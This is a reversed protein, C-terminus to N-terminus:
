SYFPSSCRLSWLRTFMEQFPILLLWGTVLLRRLLEVLEWYFFKDRFGSTLFHAAKGSTSRPVGARLDKRNFFLIFFFLVLMGVPWLLLMAVAVVMSVNHTHSSCVVTPDKLLFSVVEGGPAVEYQECVWTSFIARSVSPLCIFVILLSLCVAAVQKRASTSPNSKAATSSRSGRDNSMIPVVSNRIQNVRCLKCEMAWVVFLVCAAVTLPSLSTILLLTNEWGNICGAPYALDTWDFTLFQFYGILAAIDEPLDIHFTQSLSVLIQFFGLAIQTRAVTPSITASHTPAAHGFLARRCLCPTVRFKSPGEQALDTVVITLVRTSAKLFCNVSRRPRWNLAYVVFMALCIASAVAAAFGISLLAAAPCETCLGTDAKVHYLPAICVKCEPGTQGM